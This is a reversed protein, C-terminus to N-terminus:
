AANPPEGKNRRRASRKGLQALERILREIEAVHMAQLQEFTQLLEWALKADHGHRELQDAVGRQRAIDVEGSAAHRKAQELAMEMIRRNL